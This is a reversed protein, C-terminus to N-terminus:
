ADGLVRGHDEPQVVVLVVLAGRVLVPSAFQKLQEREADAVVGFFVDELAGAGEGAPRYGGLYGPRRKVSEVPSELEPGFLVVVTLLGEESAGSVEVSLVNDVDDEFLGRTGLNMARCRYLKKTASSGCTGAHDTSWGRSGSAM